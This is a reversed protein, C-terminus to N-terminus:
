FNGIILFAENGVLFSLNVSSNIQREQKNSFSIKKQISTVLLM